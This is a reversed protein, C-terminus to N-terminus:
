HLDVHVGCIDFRSMRVYDRTKKAKHDLGHHPWPRGTVVEMLGKRARWTMAHRLPEPENKHTGIVPEPDMPWFMNFTKSSLAETPAGDEWHNMSNCQGPFVVPLLGSLEPFNESLM